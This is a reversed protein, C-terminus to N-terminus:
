RSEYFKQAEERRREDRAKKEIACAERYAKRRAGCIGEVLCLVRDQEWKNMWDLDGSIVASGHFMDRYMFTKVGRKTDLIVYDVFHSCCDRDAQSPNDYVELKKEAILEMIRTVPPRTMRKPTIFKDWYWVCGLLVCALACIWFGTM